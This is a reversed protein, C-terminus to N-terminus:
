KTVNANAKLGSIMLALVSKIHKEGDENQAVSLNGIARLLDYPEIRNNIQGADLAAKMLSTLAPEFHERFYEPLAEYAPDGSHLASALGKKTTLFQVYQSLWSELAKLPPFKSSLIEAETTCADVEHRFVSAILDSRKPFRRYVTGVGVGAESAIDRVPVDVGRSLFLEKAVGLIADENRAADARRKVKTETVSMCANQGIPFFCAM